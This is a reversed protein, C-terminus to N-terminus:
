HLLTHKMACLWSETNWVHAKHRTVSNPCHSMHSVAWHKCPMGVMCLQWEDRNKAPSLVPPPTMVDDITCQLM